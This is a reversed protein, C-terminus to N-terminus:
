CFFITSNKNKKTHHGLIAVKRHNCLVRNENRNHTVALKSIAKTNAACYLCSRPLLSSMLFNQGTIYRVFNTLSINASIM